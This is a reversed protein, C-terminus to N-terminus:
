TYPRDVRKGIVGELGHKCAEHFLAAGDELHRSMVLPPAEGALLTRLTDKRQELPADRLDVGDYFLLDFVFYVLRAREKPAGGGLASQLEQFDTRGDPRVYAVEGDFIARRARVRSLARTIDPYHATWDLGRRSAIRVAGDDLWALARYGDYKIEYIWPGSSPVDKVFTALQPAISGFPPLAATRGEIPAAARAPPSSTARVRRTAPVGARVDELTRGTLVSAPEADVVDAAPGTRAHEDSRKMLLWTAKKAEGGKTRVLIFRGRLKEGDLEFDLHGKALGESPDGIPRWTGRDWVIVPGGGYQGKPITGEFDRYDIPHDETQVALRKDGPALSPGKPVAWSLLAGDHELRFDYHLRRADHKQVVFSRGTESRACLGSPETTRAFDRLAEYRELSRGAAGTAGRKM